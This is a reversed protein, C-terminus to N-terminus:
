TASALAAPSSVATAVVVSVCRYWMLLAVPSIAMVSTNGSFLRGAGHASTASSDPALYKKLVSVCSLEQSRGGPGSDSTFVDGGM